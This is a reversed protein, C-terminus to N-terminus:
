MHLVQMVVASDIWSGNAITDPTNQLFEQAPMWLEVDAQCPSSKIAIRHLHVNKITLM